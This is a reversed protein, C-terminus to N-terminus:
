GKVVSPTYGQHRCGISRERGRDPVAKGSIVNGRSIKFNEGRINFVKGRDATSSEKSREEDEKIINTIKIKTAKLVMDEKMFVRIKSGVEDHFEVLYYRGTGWKLRDVRKSVVKAPVSIDIHTSGHTVKKDYEKGFGAIQFEQLVFKGSIRVVLEKTDLHTNIPVVRIDRGVEQGAIPRFVVGTSVPKKEPPAPRRVTVAEPDSKKVIEEGNFLEQIIEDIPDTEPFKKEIEKFLALIIRNADNLNTFEPWTGNHVRSTDNYHMKCFMLKNLGLEDFIATNWAIDCSLYSSAVKYSITKSPLEFEIKDGMRLKSTSTLNKKTWINRKM